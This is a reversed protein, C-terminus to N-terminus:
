LTLRSLRIRSWATPPGFGSAGVLRKLLNCAILARLKRTLLAFKPPCDTPSSCENSPIRSQEDIEGRMMNFLNGYSIPQRVIGALYAALALPLMAWKLAPIEQSSTLRDPGSRLTMLSHTLERFISGLM